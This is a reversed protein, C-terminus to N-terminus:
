KTLGIGGEVAAAAAGDDVGEVTLVVGRTVNWGPSRCPLVLAHRISEERSLLDIHLVNVPELFLLRYISFSLSFLFSVPFHFLSQLKM